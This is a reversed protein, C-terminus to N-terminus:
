RPTSMPVYSSIWVFPRNREDIKLTRSLKHKATVGRLLLSWSAKRSPYSVVLNDLDVKQASIAHYDIHIPVGTKVSVAHFVDLLKVKNLEVPILEFMKPATKAMSLKPEWGVPWAPDKSSLPAVSLEISGQPTRLPRFGLGHDHLVLALATGLSHGKVEKRVTREKSGLSQKAAITFRLPYKEPVGIAELGDGLKKGHIEKTVEDSLGAHVEAFQTKSLGWLPKGAPAGQAGYTKLERIWEGLKDAEDRTFTHDKFILRGNRDLMGVVDVRRFTGLKTEKTEPKDIKTGQRIRYSVGLKELTENWTRARFGAQNDTTILTLSLQTRQEPSPKRSSGVPPRTRTRPQTRAGPQTRIGPQPRPGQLPRRGPQIRIGPQAPFQGAAPESGLVVGAAAFVSLVCFRFCLDPQM